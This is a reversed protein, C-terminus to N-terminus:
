RSTEKRVWDLYDASATTAPVVIWQPVTYPHNAGLWQELARTSNALFKFTVRFETERCLKGDWHYISAIPADIQACAALRKEVAGAALREADERSPVTTWGVCLGTDDPSPTTPTPAAM